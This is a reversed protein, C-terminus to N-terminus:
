GKQNTHGPRMKLFVSEFYKYSLWALGFAFTYSCILLPLQHYKVSFDWIGIQRFAGAIIPILPWHYMYLGYSIKGTTDFFRNEPMFINRTNTTVNVVIIAYFFATVEFHIYPIKYNFLITGALVMWSLIQVWNLYLFRLISHDHHILWAAIVGMSISGFKSISLLELLNTLFPDPHLRFLIVVLARGGIIGLIVAIPFYLKRKDKLFKFFPPWFIYFQEEISLSWYHPLVSINYGPYVFAFNMIFFCLLFLGKGNISPYNTYLGTYHDAILVLILIGFYLPWIRLIRKFYFNRLSVTGTKKQEVFMVHTIIFGSIVFFLNVMNIGLLDHNKFFTAVSTDGFDGAIQYVHGFLVFSAAIARLGNLGPLKDRM